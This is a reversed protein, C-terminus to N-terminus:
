DEISDMVEMSWVMDFAKQPDREYFLAANTEKPRVRNMYSQGVRLGNRVDDAVVSLWEEYTM